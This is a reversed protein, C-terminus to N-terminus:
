KVNDPVIKWKGVQRPVKSELIVFDADQVHVPEGAAGAAAVQANLEKLLERERETEEPTVPKRDPKPDRWWPAMFADWLRTTLFTADLPPRSAFSMVGRNKEEDTMASFYEDLRKLDSKLDAAWLFQQNPKLFVPVTRAHLRDKSAFVMCFPLYYLYNMDIKNSAREAGILGYMLAATFFLDVSMVHAAYPAFASLPLQGSSKWRDFIKGWLEYPINLQALAVGLVKEAQQADGIIADALQKVESLRKPRPKSRLFPEAAKVARTLDLTGLADRWAKAYDRELDQFEGRRWRELAKSERSQDFIVGRKGEREVSRGGGLVPLRKMEVVEGVLDATCLTNHHVNADATMVATKEALRAVVQEPTRGDTREKTLDALTEIFFLPTMNGRYFQGLWVSEDPSLSELLSKDFVLIPGTGM